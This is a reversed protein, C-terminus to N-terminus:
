ALDWERELRDLESLLYYVKGDKLEGATPVALRGNEMDSRVKPDIQARIAPWEPQLNLYEMLTKCRAQYNFAAVLRRGDIILKRRHTQKAEFLPDSIGAVNKVREAHSYSMLVMVVFIVFLAAGLAQLAWPEFKTAIAEAQEAYGLAAFIMGLAGIVSAVLHERFFRVVNGM